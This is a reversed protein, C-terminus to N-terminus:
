GARRPRLWPVVLPNVLRDAFADPAIKDFISIAGDGTMLDITDAGLNLIGLSIQRSTASTETFAAMTGDTPQAVTIYTGPTEDIQDALIPIYDGGIQHAEIAQDRWIM